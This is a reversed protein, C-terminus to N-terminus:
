SKLRVMETHAVDTVSRWAIRMLESTLSSRFLWEAEYADNRCVSVSRNLNLWCFEKFHAFKRVYQIFVDSDRELCLNFVASRVLRRVTGDRIARSAFPLRTHLFLLLFSLWRRAFPFWFGFRVNFVRRM